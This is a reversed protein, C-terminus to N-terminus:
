GHAATAAPEHFLGPFLAKALDCDAQDRVEFLVGAMGDMLEANCAYHQRMHKYHDRCGPMGGRSLRDGIAGEAWTVFALVDKPSAGNKTQLRPM